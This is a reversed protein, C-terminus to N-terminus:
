KKDQKLINDVENVATDMEREVRDMEEFVACLFKAAEDIKEPTGLEGAIGLGSIIGINFIAADKKSTLDGDNTVKDRIIKYAFAANELNDFNSNEM